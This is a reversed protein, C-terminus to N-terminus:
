VVGPRHQSLQAQLGFRFILTRLFEVVAQAVFIQVIQLHYLPQILFVCSEACFADSFDTRQDQQADAHQATDSQANIKEKEVLFLGFWLRRIGRQDCGRESGVCERVDGDRVVAAAVAVGKRVAGGASGQQLAQLLNM